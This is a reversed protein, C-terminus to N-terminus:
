GNCMSLFKMKTAKGRIPKESLLKHILSLVLNGTHTLAGDQQLLHNTPFLNKSNRVPSNLSYCSRQRILILRPGTKTCQADNRLRKARDRMSMYRVHIIRSWFGGRKSQECNGIHSLFFWWFFVIRRLFISDAHMNDYTWTSFIKRETLDQMRLQMVRRIEYPLMRFERLLIYQM